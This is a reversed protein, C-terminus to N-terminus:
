RGTELLHMKAPEVLWTFYLSEDLTSISRKSITLADSKENAFISKRIRAIESEIFSNAMSSDLFVNKSGESVEEGFEGRLMSVVFVTIANENQVM